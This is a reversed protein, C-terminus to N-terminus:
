RSMARSTGSNGGVCAQFKGRTVNPGSAAFDRITFFVFLLSLFALGSRRWSLTWVENDRRFRLLQLSEMEDQLRRFCVGAGCSARAGDRERVVFSREEVDGRGRRKKKM